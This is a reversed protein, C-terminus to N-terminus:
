QFNAIDALKWLRNIRQIRLTTKTNMKQKVEAIRLMSEWDKRQGRKARNKKEEKAAAAPRFRVSFSM